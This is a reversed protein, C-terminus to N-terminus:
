KLRKVRAGKSFKGDFTIIEKAGSSRVKAENMEEFSMRRGARGAQDATKWLDELDFLVVQGHFGEAGSLSLRIRTGTYLGLCKRLAIPLAIQGKSNVTTEAATFPSSPNSSM